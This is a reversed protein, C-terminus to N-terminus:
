EDQDTPVIEEGDFSFMVDYYELDGSWSAGQMQLEVGPYTVGNVHITANPIQWASSKWKELAARCAAIEQELSWTSLIHLARDHHFQRQREDDQSLRAEQRLLYIIESPADLITEPIEIGGVRAIYDASDHESRRAESLHELKAELKECQLQAMPDTGVCVLTRVESASGLNHFKAGLGARLEGGIASGMGDCILHGGCRVDCYALSSGIILDAPTSITAYQAFKINITDGAVIASGDHGQMGGLVTVRGHAVLNAAEVSGEIYISMGSHVSCGQQVDGRVIVSAESEVNGSAHNVNGDVIFIPIVSIRGDDGSLVEGSLQAVLRDDVTEVHDGARDGSAVSGVIEGEEVLQPFSAHNVLEESLEVLSSRIM